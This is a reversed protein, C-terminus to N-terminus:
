DTTLRDIEEMARNLHTYKEPPKDCWMERHVIEALGDAALARIEESRYSEIQFAGQGDFRVTIRKNYHCQDEPGYERVILSAGFLALSELTNAFGDGTGNTSVGRHGLKALIHPSFAPANDSICITYVGDRRSFHVKVMGQRSNKLKAIEKFANDMHDAFVKVVELQPIGQKDLLEVDCHVFLKLYVGNRVARENCEKFYHNLLVWSTKPLRMNRQRKILNSKEEDLYLQNLQLIEKGHEEIVQRREETGMSGLAENLTQLMSPIVKQTTHVQAFIEKQSIRLGSNEAQLIENETQLRMKEMYRRLFYIIAILVALLIGVFAILIVINELSPTEVEEAIGFYAYIGLIVVGLVYILAKIEVEEFFSAMNKSKIKQYLLLGGAIYLVVTSFGVVAAPAAPYVLFLVAYVVIAAAVIMGQAIAVAAITIAVNAMKRHELLLIFLLFVIALAFLLRVPQVIYYRAFFMYAGISVMCLAPKWYDKKYAVKKQSLATYFLFYFLADVSDLISEWLIFNM